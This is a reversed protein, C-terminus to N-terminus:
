TRAKNRREGDQLRRTFPKLRNLAIRKEDSSLMLKWKSKVQEPDRFTSYTSGKSRVRREAIADHINSGMRLNMFDFIQSFTEQPADVLTEFSVSMHDFLGLKDRAETTRIGWIDALLSVWHDQSPAALIGRHQALEDRLKVEAKLVDFRKRYNWREFLDSEKFSAIVSLSDREIYVIKLDPIWQKLWELKLFFTTEKTVKVDGSSFRMWSEFNKFFSVIEPSFM